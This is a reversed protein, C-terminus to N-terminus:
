LGAMSCSTSFANLYGWIGIQASVFVTGVVIVPMIGILAALGTLVGPAPWFAPDHRPTRPMLWLVIAEIL